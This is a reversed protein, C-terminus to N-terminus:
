VGSEGHACVCVCLYVCSSAFNIKHLNILSLLKAQADDRHYYYVVRMASAVHLAVCGPKRMMM